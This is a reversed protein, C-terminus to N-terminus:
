MAIGRPLSSGGVLLISVAALFSLVIQPAPPEAEDRQAARRVEAGVDPRSVVPRHRRREPHPEAPLHVPNTIMCAATRAAPLRGHLTRIPTGPYMGAAKCAHMCAHAANRADVAYGHRQFITSTCEDAPSHHTWTWSLITYTVPVYNAVQNSGGESTKYTLM